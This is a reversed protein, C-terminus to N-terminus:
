LLSKQSSVEEFLLRFQKIIIKAFIKTLLWGTAATTVRPECGKALKNHDFPTNKSDVEFVVCETM